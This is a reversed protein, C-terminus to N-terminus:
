LSEKDTTNTENKINQKYDDFMMKTKNGLTTIYNVFFEMEKLARLYKKCDEVNVSNCLNGWEYDTKQSIMSNIQRCTEEDNKSCLENKCNEICKMRLDQLNNINKVITEEFHKIKIHGIDHKIKALDENTSVMTKKFFNFLGGRKTKNHKRHKKNKSFRM